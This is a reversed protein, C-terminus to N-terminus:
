GRQRVRSEVIGRALIALVVGIIVGAAVDTPYHVYFYLRSISILVAGALAAIGWRKNWLFISAAAAFSSMTHGSPFSYDKPISILMEVEPNRWCPRPRAVINKLCLNGTILCFLLSLLLVAGTKRTVKPLLMFIGIVIWGIGAEGMTTFWYFLHSLVPTHISQFWDLIISDFQEIM